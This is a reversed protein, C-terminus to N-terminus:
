VLDIGLRSQTTTLITLEQNSYLRPMSCLYTLMFVFSPPIGFRVPLDQKNAPILLPIDKCMGDGHLAIDLWERVEPPRDTDNADIVWVVADAHKFFSREM